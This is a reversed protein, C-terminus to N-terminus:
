NYGNWRWKNDFVAYIIASTPMQCSVWYGSMNWPQVFCFTIRRACFNSAIASIGHLLCHLSRIKSCSKDATETSIQFRATFILNSNSDGHKDFHRLVNM